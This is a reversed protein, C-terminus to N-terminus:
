GTVFGQNTGDVEILSCGVNKRVRKDDMLRRMRVVDEWRRANAYIDAMISYVGSDEPNLRLLHQTAVEAIEVNGHIRCAGLVSGWVYTDGEMPMGRIMEMVEEVLGARGLLDAMCGYHKLERAVGYVSEMEDFLRWAMDVLGAHSCAVLVGLFTVGDPRVGVEIMRDFYELSQRGHGHMALGVVIANWTFLNKCPASEFMEMAIDICGCKAYMDVLGTLLYVNLTARNEKIYKHIAKGQDLAGLQACCSLASVLAVDDPGLGTSLMSDFLQLAEKFQKMQAYGALLTGWSVVDRAPMEDFLKRAFVMDGAKVYGDILTNYTVVDHLSSQDFLCQADLM